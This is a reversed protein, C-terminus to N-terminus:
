EGQSFDPIRLAALCFAVDPPFQMMISVGERGSMPAYVRTLNSKKAAWKTQEEFSPYATRKDSYVLPPINLGDIGYNTYPQIHQFSTSTNTVGIDYEVGNLETVELISGCLLRNDKLGIAEFEAVPQITPIVTNRKFDQFITGDAMIGLVGQNFGVLYRVYRDLKRPFLSGQATLVIGDTLDEGFYLIFVQAESNYTLCRKRDIIGFNQANLYDASVLPTGAVISGFVNQAAAQVISASNSDYAYIAEKVIVHDTAYEQGIEAIKEINIGSTDISTGAATSYSTAGQGIVLTYMGNKKTLLAKGLFEEISLLESNDGYFGHFFGAGLSEDFVDLNGVTSYYIEGDMGEVFLRNCCWAILRPVITREPNEDTPEDPIYTMDFEKNCRESITATDSLSVDATSQHALRITLAVYYEFNVQEGDVYLVIGSDDGGVKSTPSTQTEVLGGKEDVTSRSLLISSGSKVQITINRTSPNYEIVYTYSGTQLKDIAVTSARNTGNIDPIVFSIKGTTTEVGKIEEVVRETFRDYSTNRTLKSGLGVKARDAIKPYLKTVLEGDVAYVKQNGQTDNIWVGRDNKYQWTQSVPTDSPSAVMYIDESGIATNPKILIKMNDKPRSEIVFPSIAYSKDQTYNYGYYEYDRETRTVTQGAQTTTEVIIKSRDGLNITTGGKQVNVIGEIRWAVDNGLADFTFDTPRKGTGERSVSRVTAEGIGSIDVKKGLWYYESDEIPVKIDSYYGYTSIPVTTSIPVLTSEDGYYNGFLINKGSDSIIMEDQRCTMLAEESVEELTTKYKKLGESPTYLFVNGTNALLFLYGSEVDKSVAVIYESDIKAKEVYGYQPILAGKECFTNRGGVLALSGLQETISRPTDLLYLGESFDGFIWQGNIKAQRSKGKQFSKSM